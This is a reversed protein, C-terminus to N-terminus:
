VKKKRRTVLGLATLGAGMLALTGPEPIPTPPDDSGPPPTNSMWGSGGNVLGQAHIANMFGTKGDPGDVSVGFTHALGIGLFDWELTDTGDFRPPNASLDLFWDFFGDGDAKFANLGFSFGGVSGIDGTLNALTPQVYPDLNGYLGTIFETGVMTGQFVFHVGGAISSTTLTACGTVQNVCEVGGSFENAFGVIGASAGGGALALVAAAIKALKRM